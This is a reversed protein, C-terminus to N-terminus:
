SRPDERRVVAGPAALAPRADVQGRGLRRLDALRQPDRPAQDGRGFEDRQVGLAPGAQAERRRGLDVQDQVQVVVGAPDVGSQVHVHQEAVVVGEHVGLARAPEGPGAGPPDPEALDVVRRSRHPEDGAVGHIGPRIEVLDGHPAFVHLAAQTSVHQAV